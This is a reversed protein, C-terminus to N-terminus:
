KKLLQIDGSFTSVSVQADGAGTRFNLSRGPSYGRKPAGPGFANDIKGSFSTADFEASVDAPLRLTVDGSHSEVHITANAGLTGTLDIPGSVTSLKARELESAATLQISGGVAGATVDGGVGNLVIKGGVTEADVHDCKSEITIVGNVTQANLRELPDVVTIDGNVAQLDVEGTVKSVSITANVVEIRLGAGTPVKIDLDASGTTHRQGEPFRAEVRMRRAAIWTSISM